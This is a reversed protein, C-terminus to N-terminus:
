TPLSSYYNFIPPEYQTSKLNLPNTIQIKWELLMSTQHDEETALPDVPRAHILHMWSGIRDVKITTLTIIM